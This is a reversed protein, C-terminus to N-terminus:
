FRRPNGKSSAAVAFMLFFYVVGVVVSLILIITGIIGCIRGAQTMGEGEPDMRGARIEALDQNGMIWAFPSLLLGLCCVFVSVLGLIGLTLIMGGRHPMLDRRSPRGRRRGYDDDYDDDYDDEFRRRRRPPPEPEPEPEHHRPAPAAPPRPAAAGVNATFTAGCTPCQVDQGILSEPVQLKRGCQGCSIIENM